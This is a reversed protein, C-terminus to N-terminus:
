PSQLDQSNQTEKVIKFNIFRRGRIVDPDVNFEFLYRDPKQGHGETVHIIGQHNFRNYLYAGIAGVLCDFILCVWIPLEQGFLWIM